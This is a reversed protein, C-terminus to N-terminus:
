VTLFPLVGTRVGSSAWASSSLMGTVLFGGIIWLLGILRIQKPQTVASQDRHHDEAEGPDAGDNLHLNAVIKDLPAATPHAQMLFAALLVVNGTMM